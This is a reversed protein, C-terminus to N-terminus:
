PQGSASCDPPPFFDRRCSPCHCFPENYPVQSHPGILTRPESHVSCLRGCHPCPREPALTAAQQELLASLTGETLGQAAAAAIQEMTQFDVHADPGADGFARRVIIKGWQAAQERIERIKEESLKRQAM